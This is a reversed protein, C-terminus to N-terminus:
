QTLFLSMENNKKRRKAARHEHVLAFSVHCTHAVQIYKSAAPSRDADEKYKIRGSAKIHLYICNTYRHIEMSVRTREIHTTHSLRIMAPSDHGKAPENIEPNRRLIWLMDWGARYLRTDPFTVRLWSGSCDNVAGERCHISSGRNSISIERRDDARSQLGEFKPIRSQFYERPFLVILATSCCTDRSPERLFDKLFPLLFLFHTGSATSLEQNETKNDASTRSEQGRGCM